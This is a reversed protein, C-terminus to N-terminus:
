PGTRSTAWNASLWGAWVMEVHAVHSTDAGAL